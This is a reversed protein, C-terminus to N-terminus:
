FKGDRTEFHTPKNLTAGGASIWDAIWDIMQEVSVRPYGFLRQCRAANSLLANESESNQLVPEVGFREGFQMAVRRVSITEPGTLNLVAPPSSCLSFSRLCVSNADGQWIVNAHGMRLDVPAREYVKLGIDVLVGYRLEVAYNLRLLTVPTGYQRSFYDFMRERGLCSQAYEGVPGVPATEAPGGHLVPTLPYVNGTSFAVIRANRYREAVLGPLFTNMAWTLSENGTSGFKRAAMFIVNSADPLGALAGPALLDASVTEVGWAQLRERVAPTSFRAVGIIRKRVGAMECARVARRALSPGMKGAVGLLLLDGQLQAMACGDAETPQSLIDELQEETGITM